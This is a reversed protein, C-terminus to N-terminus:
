QLSDFYEITKVFDMENRIDLKNEKVFDQVDKRKDGMMRMIKSRTTPMQYFSGDDVLYYTTSKKFTAPTGRDYTSKPEQRPAFTSVTKKYLSYRNGEFLVNFYGSKEPFRENTVYVYIDNLMNVYIDPSKVLAGYDEDTMNKKIEIEDAYANYRMPVGHSIVEEGQYINGPIFSPNAYAEDKIAEFEAETLGFALSKENLDITRVHIDIDHSRDRQAFANLGLLSFLGVILIRKM